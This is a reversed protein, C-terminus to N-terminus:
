MTAIQSILTTNFMIRAVTNGSDWESDGLTFSHYGYGVQSAGNVPGGYTFSTIVFYELGADPNDQALSTFPTTNKFKNKISSQKGWEIATEVLNSGAKMPDPTNSLITLSPNPIYLVNANGTNPLSHLYTGWALFAASTTPGGGHTTDPTFTHKVVKVKNFGYYPNPNTPTGTTSATCIKTGGGLYSGILPTTPSYVTAAFANTSTLALILILNKM